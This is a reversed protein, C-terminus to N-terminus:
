SYEVVNVWQLLLERESPQAKSLQAAAVLPMWRQIAYKDTKSAKCFAALYKEAFATKGKLVFRMYTLAADAAPSGQTVHAWDTIYPKKGKTSIIINSPVFDGHCINSLHPMSTLRTHLDYRTTADLEAANIKRDIKAYLDNLNKARKSFVELQLDIFSKLLKAIEKPDKEKDLIQQLTKGAIFERRIAWKGDIKMVELIKPVNLGTDEVRAQNLAENLIGAKSFSEDFVKVVTDGERYITKGNRVALVKEDTKKM